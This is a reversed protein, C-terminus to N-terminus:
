DKGEPRTLKKLLRKIEDIDQQMQAIRRFQIDQEKHLKDTRTALETVLARLAAVRRASEKPEDSRPLFRIRAAPMLM